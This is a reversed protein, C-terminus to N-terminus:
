RISPSSVLSPAAGSGDVPFGAAQPILELPGDAANLQPPFPARAQILSAYGDLVRPSNVAAAAALRGSRGYAIVFRGDALSGQTLVAQDTLWPVGLVKINAGFQDSWFAPLREYARQETAPRIMNYAAARAQEVANGWHELTILQKDYLPHPWRAVDGAAFIEQSASGDARCARGAQDCVVGLQNAALGAGSLWEVNAVAGLAVVAVDAALSSGDSLWARRLQGREDGELATVTIELRLDVGSERQLRAAHGGVIGGLASSLPSPGRHVLTVALGLSRCASAVESGTFGGGVVLVRQPGAALAARLRSADDLGRLVHVGSLVREAGPLQRARVGTAILLRDYTVSRGDALLVLRGVPDLGAAATGLLWGADAERIRALQVHETDLWGTLVAKSLPPRDYPQRPEDGIITIEGAFGEDRLAEAARLGALSAGAIVIRRPAPGSGTM